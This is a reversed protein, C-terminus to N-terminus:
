SVGARRPAEPVAPRPAPPREIEDEVLAIRGSAAVFPQPRLEPLSASRMPRTSVGTAGCSASARVAQQRQHLQVGRADRRAGIGGAIGNEQHVLVPHPPVPKLDAAPKNASARACSSPPPRPEVRQLRRDDGTVGSGGRGIFRLPRADCPEIGFQRRQHARRDDLEVARNRDAHGLPRRGRERDHVSQCALGRQLVIMQQSLTRPSRSQLSPRKASARAANSIAARSAPCCARVPVTSVARRRLPRHLFAARQNRFSRHMGRVSPNDNGSCCGTSSIRLVVSDLADKGFVTILWQRNDDRRWCKRFQRM